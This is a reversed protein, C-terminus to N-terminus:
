RMEMLKCRQVDKCDRHRSNDLLAFSVGVFFWFPFSFYRSFFSENVLCILLILLPLMGIHKLHHAPVSKSLLFLKYYFFAFWIMSIILGVIGTVYLLEFPVFHPFTFNQNIKDFHPYEYKFMGPGKGFLWNLTSFTERILALSQQWITWRLHSNNNMISLLRINLTDDVYFVTLMLAILATSIKLLSSRHPSVFFLVLLTAGMGIFPGRTKSLLFATGLILMIIYYVASSIKSSSKQLRAIVIFLGVGSWLALYFTNEFFSQARSNLGRLYIAEYTAYLSVMLTCAIFYNLVRVIRRQDYRFFDYAVMSLGVGKLFYRLKGIYPPQASLLASVTVASAFAALLGASPPLAFRERAAVKKIVWIVLLADWLRNFWVLNLPFAFILLIINLEILYDTFRSYEKM